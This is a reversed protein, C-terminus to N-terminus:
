IRIFYRQRYLWFAILWFVLFKASNDFIPGYMDQHLAGDGFIARIPIGLHTHIQEITWDGMLEGMLYILISNMGIVVLPFALWKLPLADFLLYFLALGWIVYAGSFLVWSPTWIRKVVPCVLEAALSLGFCAGGMLILVGIKKWAGWTGVLLIQGCLVGLLMTAISPVFNLTQYGGPNYLFRGTQDDEGDSDRPERLPARPFSNLLNVDVRHAINGNKSWAAFPGVYINGPEPEDPDAVVESIPPEDGPEATSETGATEEAPNSASPDPVSQQDAADNGAQDSTDFLVYMTQDSNVRASSPAASDGGGDADSEADDSDTEGDENEETSGNADPSEAAPTESDPAVVPANEPDIVLPGEYIVAAYDYDKEPPNFYFLAWYGALIVAIATTQWYWRVGLLAYAFLYGLGIQCLVNPFIWNTQSRGQSYLFVGLLVLVLARIVAHIHRTWSKQGHAERRRYSFPMAVGVMFMFAPQILDWFSVGMLGFKSEWEPHEFHFGVQQWFARDHIEWLRSTSAIDTFAYIGFGTAALMTMIFGRYADLSTLRPPAPSKPKPTSGAAGSPPASRQTIEQPKEGPKLPIKGVMRNNGPKAETRTLAEADGNCETM